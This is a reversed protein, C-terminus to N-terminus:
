RFLLIIRINMDKMFQVKCKIAERANRKSRKYYIQIKIDYM